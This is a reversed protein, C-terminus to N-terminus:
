KLDAKIKVIHDTFKSMWYNYYDDFVEYGKDELKWLGFLQNRLIQAKSKGVEDFDTKINSITEIQEKKFADKNFALVGPYQICTQIMQIQEPTPENTEFVLKLTKDKLSRYSDLYAPILLLKTM